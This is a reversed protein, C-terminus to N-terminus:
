SDAKANTNEFRRHVGFLGLFQVWCPEFVTNKLVSQLGFSVVIQGGPRLNSSMNPSKVGRPKLEDGGLIARQM